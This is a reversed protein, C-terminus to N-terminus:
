GDQEIWNKVVQAVLQPDSQVVAKARTVSDLETSVPPPLSLSDPQSLSVRDPPLGEIMPLSDTIPAARPPSTLRRMVPSLVGFIFALAILLAIAPKLMLQFWPQEWFPLEIPAEPVDVRVFPFSQIEVLDGRQVDYGIANRVLKAINDLEAQARPTRQAQEGAAAPAGEVYDLGVSATIRKVMGIQNRTHSITTDVEYNREAESRVRANNNAAAVAGPAAATAVEPAVAPVPPQNTLAGPVGATGADANSENLTRESRVVSLEPNFVKQTSESQSFDMDVHVEVTYKGMGVIPELLREIKRQLVESRKRSEAFERSSMIEDRSMSGSHHLRGFQDTITVRSSDLNPVSGAVLDVMARVQEPDLTRQGTLNLLVSASPKESDRVFVAEKPLALHVEAARVGSFQEITRALKLEQSRLLRAQELRQSVSFGSDKSLYADAQGAGVEIGQGSLQMQVRQYEDQPVMITGDPELRYPIRQAELQSIIELAQAREVQGLPRMLPEKLWIVVMIGLAVSAALGILIGLQRLVNLNSLNGLAGGGFGPLNPAANAEAM